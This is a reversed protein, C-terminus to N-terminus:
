APEDLLSRDMFPDRGKGWLAYATNAHNEGHQGGSSPLNRRTVRGDAV